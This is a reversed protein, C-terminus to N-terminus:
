RATDTEGGAEPESARRYLRELQEIEARARATLPELDPLAARADGTIEAIVDFALRVLRFLGETQAQLGALAKAAQQLAEQQGRLMGVISEDLERRKATYTESM